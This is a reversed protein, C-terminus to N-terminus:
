FPQNGAEGYRRDADARKSIGCPRDKRHYHRGRRQVGSSTTYETRRNGRDAETQDPRQRDALPESAVGPKCREAIANGSGDHTGATIQQGATRYKQHSEQQGNRGQNREPADAFAFNIRGLRMARHRALHGIGACCANQFQHAM